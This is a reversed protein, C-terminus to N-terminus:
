LHCRCQCSSWLTNGLRWTLPHLTARLCVCTNQLSVQNYKGHALIQVQGLDAGLWFYCNHPALFYNDSILSKKWSLSGSIFHHRQWLRLGQWKTAIIDWLMYQSATCTGSPALSEPITNCYEPTSWGLNSLKIRYQRYTLKSSDVTSPTIAM